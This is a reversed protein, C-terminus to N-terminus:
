LGFRPVTPSTWTYLVQTKWKLVAPADPAPTDAFRQVLTVRWAHMGHHLQTRALWRVTPEDLSRVDMSVHETWKQWRYTRYRAVEPNGLPARWVTQTGDPYDLIAYLDNTMQRPNPAFVGWGQDLGATDFYPRWTPVLRDRLVSGPLNWAVIGLLTFVLFASIVMRGIDSRELREQIDGFTRMM